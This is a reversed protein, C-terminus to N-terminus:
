YLCASISSHFIIYFDFEKEIPVQTTKSVICGGSIPQCTDDQNTAFLDGTTPINNM